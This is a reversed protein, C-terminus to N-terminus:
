FFPWGEQFMLCFIEPPLSINQLLAKLSFLLRALLGSLRCSKGHYLWFLFLLNLQGFCPVCRLCFYFFSIQLWTCIQFLYIHVSQQSFMSIVGLFTPFCCLHNQFMLFHSHNAVSDLKEPIQSWSPACINYIWQHTDTLTVQFIIFIAYLHIFYLMSFIDNRFIESYSFCAESEEWYCKTTSTFVCM